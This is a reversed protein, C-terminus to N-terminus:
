SKAKLKQFFLNRLFLLPAVIQLFMVTNIIVNFTAEYYLSVSSDLIYWILVPYFISRWAWKEGKRFPIYAIYLMTSGWGAMVAGMLGILWGKMLLASEEPIRGSFFVSNIQESLFDTNSTNGLIILLIGAAIIIFMTIKLWGMWFKEATM